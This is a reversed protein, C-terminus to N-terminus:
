DLRRKWEEPDRHGHFVALVNVLKGDFIYCTVYPFRRVLSQRVNKYSEAFALPNQAIRKLLDDVCNLFEHGLDPRQGDYWDRARVLDVEAEPSVILPYPM